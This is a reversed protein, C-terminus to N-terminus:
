REALGAVRGKCIVIRGLVLTGHDIGELLLEQLVAGGIEQGVRLGLLKGLEERVAAAGLAAAGGHACVLHDGERPGAAAAATAGNGLSEEPGGPGRSDGG